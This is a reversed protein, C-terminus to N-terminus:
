KNASCASELSIWNKIMYKNSSLTDCYCGFNSLAIFVILIDLKATSVYNITIDVTVNFPLGEVYVTACGVEDVLTAIAGSGLNGNKDQSPSEQNFPFPFPFLAEDLSTGDVASPGAPTRSGLQTSNTVDSLTLTTAITPKAKARHLASRTTM